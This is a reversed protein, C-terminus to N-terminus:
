MRQLLMEFSFTKPIKLATLNRQKKVGNDNEMLLIDGQIVIFRDDDEIESMKNFVYHYSHHETTGWTFGSVPVFEVNLKNDQFWIKQRKARELYKKYNCYFIITLFASIIITLGIGIALLYPIKIKLVILSFFLCLSIVFTLITNKIRNIFIKGYYRKFISKNFNM